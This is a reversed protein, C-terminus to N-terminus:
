LKVGMNRRKEIKMMLKKKNRHRNKKREEKSEKGKREICKRKTKNEGM